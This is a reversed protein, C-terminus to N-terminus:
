FLKELAIKLWATYHKPNISIDKKIDELSKWDYNNVEDINIIPNDNYTGIFVHDYEHEILKNDFEAKYIFSGKYTLPTEIGMEERLRRIAANENSEHPRPHSCCTNTWLGASHYKSFARQQLLLKGQSNFIFVSFARHLLGKQHAELKEITGIPKDNTDVLIVQEYPM